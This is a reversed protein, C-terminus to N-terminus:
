LTCIRRRRRWTADCTSNFLEAQEASFESTESFQQRAADMVKERAEHPKEKGSAFIESARETFRDYLTEHNPAGASNSNAGAGAAKHHQQNNM